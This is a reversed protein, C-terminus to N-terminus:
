SQTADLIKQLSESGAGSVCKAYVRLLVLVSHGAWAAVQAPDGTAKLWTSVAAHRLSYPVDLLPSAAEEPTLAAARAEHFIKLYTRDTVAGGHAGIFIHGDPAPGYTALHHRLMRALEPHMPVSRTDGVARHKLPALERPMGSETWRSGSRPISHTLHFEGWTNPEDPLTALNTVRLAAAEEPRLGAYYMCGFFAKLRAGRESHREVADLFRKAQDSNVVVRPDVASVSRPRTWKVYTLPNVLLLGSECAHDFANHLVMRKRNTTNAAARTGDKRQSLRVLAARVLKGGTSRDGLVDMGVTNKRLWSAADVISKDPEASPDIIKTSFAWRMAARLREQDPRSDKTIFAETSDILAEAIGRRYNPSAQQWKAAAYGEAFTFWTIQQKPRDWSAPEGTDSRFVEGRKAAGMLESRFADALSRSPFSRRHLRKNIRWCVRFSTIKGDRNRRKELNQIRVDYSLDALAEKKM